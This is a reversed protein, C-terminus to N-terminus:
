ESRVKFELKWRHSDDRADRMWLELVGLENVTAQLNVAVVQGPQQDARPPLTVELRSSEELDREADPLLIGARDGARSASSFFRFEVPEGVTLGFQREELTVESGEEMGQPVVCLAKVKPKLGPVAMSSAELGLYYSRAAGAKIRVGKGTIASLGYSAAGRAVALDFDGGPLERPGRGGTWSALAELVRQRLPAAKFVGGNFLAATPRLQDGTFSDAVLQALQPSSKVSAASRQLFRALHKTIAPDAAYPLGLERLGATRGQVPGDDRAVLPFFGELAIAELTERRLATSITKAFLRASRSPLSIPYSPLQQDSFLAEKGARCAQILALFQWEDVAAGEEELQAQVAHALALDMNDGGLLIHEGVAIRELKLVGAEESVAILSFDATGGGVDCVLILDGPRTERRWDAQARNLWAYFAAQPEELLLAEGMGAAEAAERTLARAAEDFSAPVTVVVQGGAFRESRGAREMAADFAARLHELYRRSAEVPSLKGEAESGWPLIPGRRDAHPQCLWSKASTVVRDPALAGRERALQGSVPGASSEWPLRVAEPSFEGERPLYLVSPLTPREVLAGPSALQTIEVTAVNPQDASALAVACNSTGLDIGISFRKSM